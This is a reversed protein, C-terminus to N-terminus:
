GNTKRQRDEVQRLADRLRANRRLSLVVLGVLLGLSVAYASIVEAAYKGLEPMM